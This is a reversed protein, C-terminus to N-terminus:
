GEVDRYRGAIREGIMWRGREKRVSKRGWAVRKWEVRRWKEWGEKRKGKEIKRGKRKGTWIGAKLFLELGSEKTREEEFVGGGKAFRKEVGEEV